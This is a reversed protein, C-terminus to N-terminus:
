PPGPISWATFGEFPTSVGTTSHGEFLSAIADVRGPATLDRLDLNAVLSGNILLYGRDGLAIVLIHNAKGRATTIVDSSEFGRNDWGNEVYRGHLWAGSGTVVISHFGGDEGSGFRFGGSWQSEAVFLPNFLRLEVIGDAIRAETPHVDIEDSGDQRIAGDEPGHVLDVPRVVFDKYVTTSGPHEHGDFWVGILSVTGSEGVASLDLEAEYAGNIFLWGRDGLAIVRVHNQADRGKRVNCSFGLKVDAAGNPRGGNRLHHYWYGNSAITLTHYREDTKRIFFGHSWSRSQASLTDVFTAEIVSDALDVRADLEPIVSDENHALRGSAPGFGRGAVEAFAAQPVPTTSPSSGCRMAAHREVLVDYTIAFGIGQAYFDRGEIRRIVSTNMGVVEGRNNLLPGGSNGPNVAADTQVHKVGDFWRVASVIGRTITITGSLNLPFGLAIVDEGERLATAFALPTLGNGGDVKLLAIDRQEDASVVRARLRTDDDFIATLRSQGAVIHENTLIYGATDVVFGTGATREGVIRLVSPRAKTVIEEVSLSNREVVQAPLTPTEPIPSPTPVVLPTATPLPTPTLTPIPTQTPRSAIMTALVNAAAAAAIDPQARPLATAVAAEVTAAINPTPTPSQAPLATAVAAKVAAEVTAAINPTPTPPLAPLAAAVAAEVTAAINPTPTPSQAPMATATAAEVTAAVEPTPTPVHAPMAAAVAAEVTAAIDPMPTATPPNGCAAVGLAAALIAVALLPRIRIVAITDRVAARSEVREGRM